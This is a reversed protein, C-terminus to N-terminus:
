LLRIQWIEPPNVSRGACTESNRCIRSRTVASLFLKDSGSSLSRMTM